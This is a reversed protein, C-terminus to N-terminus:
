AVQAEADSAAIASAVALAVHYALLPPVANGIQRFRASVTGCWTMGRPFSQLAAAEEVTIRRLHDPAERVPKGGAILHAHYEEVWSTEGSELQRQDVIPTCNGGMSAPLTPAPADLDLPRGNGNFLLCGRYPTPRLVPKKAPAVRATCFTDNGPTGYPPLESLAERVTKDARRTSPIDTPAVGDKVGIFIMRERRQPVGYASARLVLIQTDYGLRRAHAELSNRLISWRDSIALAKVNEMVFARPEVHKVFELFTWVHGSRPDTPDMKGAVSFGQCPPGGVVVDASRPEPWPVRNVDGCVAHDGVLANYTEVATADHDNAWLPKFGADVLGRDLGGCGSYVSVFTLGHSHTTMAPAM